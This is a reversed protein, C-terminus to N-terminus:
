FLKLNKFTEFFLVSLEWVEEMIIRIYGYHATLSQFSVHIGYENNKKLPAPISKPAEHMSALARDSLQMGAYYLVMLETKM